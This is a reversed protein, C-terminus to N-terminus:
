PTWSLGVGIVSKPLRKGLVNSCDACDESRFWLYDRGMSVSAWFPVSFPRFGIEASAGVGLAVKAESFTRGTLLGREAARVAGLGVRPRVGYRIRDSLGRRALVGVSLLYSTGVYNVFEAVCSGPEVLGHCVSGTRAESGRSAGLEAYWGAGSVVRLVAGPGPPLQDGSRSVHDPQEPDMWTQGFELEWTQAHGPGSCLALLLVANLSSWMWVKRM